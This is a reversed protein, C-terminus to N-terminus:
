KVAALFLCYYTFHSGWRLSSEYDSEVGIGIGTGKREKRRKMTEKQPHQGSSVYLLSLHLDIYASNYLVVLTANLSM